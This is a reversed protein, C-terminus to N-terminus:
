KLNQLLSKSPNFDITIRAPITIIKGTKPHRVKKSSRKEKTFSGFGRLYFREGKRLDDTIKALIFKIIERSETKTLFFRKALANALDEQNM